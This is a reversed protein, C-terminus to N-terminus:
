RKHRSPSPASPRQHHQQQQQPAPQLSARHSPAQRQQQRPESASQPQRPAPRQPRPQSAAPRSPPATLRQHTPNNTLAPRQPQRNPTNAPANAAPRPHRDAPAPITVTTRPPMPRSPTFNNGPAPNPRPLAPTLRNGPQPRPASPSPLIPRQPASPSPVPPRPPEPRFVPPRPVPVVPHHPPRRPPLPNHHHKRPWYSTRWFPDYYYSSGFWLSITPTTDYYYVPDTYVSGPQSVVTTTTQTRTTTASVIATVDGGASGSLTVTAPTTGTVPTNAASAYAEGEALREYHGALSALTNDFRESLRQYKAFQDNLEGLQRIQAPTLASILSDIRPYSQRFEALDQRLDTAKTDLADLDIESSRTALFATTVGIRLDKLHADARTQLDQLDALFKECDAPTPAAAPERDAANAGTTIPAANASAILPRLLDLRKEALAATQKATITQHVLAASGIIVCGLVAGSVIGFAFPHRSKWNRDTPTNM